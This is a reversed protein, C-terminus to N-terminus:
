LCYYKVVKHNETNLTTLQPRTVGSFLLHFNDFTTKLFRIWDQKIVKSVKRIITYRWSLSYTWLRLARTLILSCKASVLKTDM